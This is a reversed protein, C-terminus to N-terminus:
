QGLSQTLPLWAKMLTEPDSLSMAKLVRDRVHAMIEEQLPGVDPLGALKRAEEPTCDVEITIKM